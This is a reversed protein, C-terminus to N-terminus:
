FLPSKREFIIKNDLEYHGFKKLGEFQKESIEVVNIKLDYKMRIEDSIKSIRDQPLFDGVIIVNAEKKNLSELIVRKIRPHMKIKEIFEQMPVEEKKLMKLLSLTKENRNFQYFRIKGMAIQKVFQQETLKNLIRFVTSINVGAVSSIESLYFKKEPHAILADLVKLIKEDFLEKLIDTEGM